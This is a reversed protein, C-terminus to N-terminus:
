FLIGQQYLLSPREAARSIFLKLEHIQIARPALIYSHPIRLESRYFFSSEGIEPPSLIYQLRHLASIASSALKQEEQPARRYELVECL